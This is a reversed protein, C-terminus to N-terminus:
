FGANRQISIRESVNSHTSHQKFRYLSSHGAEARRIASLMVKESIAVRGLRREVGERMQVDASNLLRSIEDRTRPMAKGPESIDALVTLTVFAHYTFAMDIITIMPNRRSFVTEADYSLPLYGEIRLPSEPRKGFYDHFERVRAEREGSSFRFLGVLGPGYEAAVISVWRDPTLMDKEDFPLLRSAQHATLGKNVRRYLVQDVIVSQITHELVLNGVADGRKLFSRVTDLRGISLELEQASYLSMRDAENQLEVLLLKGFMRAQQNLDSAVTGDLVAADASHICFVVDSPLSRVQHCLSTIGGEQLAEVLNSIAAAIRAGPTSAHVPLLPLVFIFSQLLCVRM